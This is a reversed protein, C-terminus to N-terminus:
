SPIFIRLGRVFFLKIVNAGPQLLLFEKESKNRFPVATEGGVVFNRKSLDLMSLGVAIDDKTRISPQFKSLFHVSHCRFPM